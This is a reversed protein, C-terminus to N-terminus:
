LARQKKCSFSLLEKDYCKFRWATEHSGAWDADQAAVSGDTVLNGNM